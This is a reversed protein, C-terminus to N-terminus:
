VLLYNWFVVLVWSCLFRSDSSICHLARCSVRPFLLIFLLAPLVHVHQGANMTLCSVSIGEHPWAWLTFQGHVHLNRRQVCFRHVSLGVGELQTYIWRRFTGFFSSFCPLGTTWYCVLFHESNPVSTFFVLLNASSRSKIKKVLRVNWTLVQWFTLHHLHIKYKQATM